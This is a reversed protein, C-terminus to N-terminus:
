IKFTVKIRTDKKYHDITKKIKGSLQTEEAIQKVIEFQIKGGTDYKKVSVEAIEMWELPKGPLEIRKYLTGTAGVPPKTESTMVLSLMTVTKAVRTTVRGYIDVTRIIIPEPAPSPAPAPPAAGERPAEASASSVFVPQALAILAAIYLVRRAANGHLSRRDEDLM